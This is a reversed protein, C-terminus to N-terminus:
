GVERRHGIGDDPVCKDALTSNHFHKGRRAAVVDAALKQGADAGIGTFLVPPQNAAIQTRVMFGRRTPLGPTLQGVAAFQCAFDEHRLQEIRQASRCNRRHKQGHETGGLISTGRFQSNFHQGASWARPGSEDLAVSQLRRPTAM